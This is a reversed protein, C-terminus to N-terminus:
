LRKLNTWMPGTDATDAVCDTHTNTNNELKGSFWCTTFVEKPGVQLNQKKQLDCQCSHTSRRQRERWQAVHGLLIHSAGVAPGGVPRVRVRVRSALARPTVAHHQLVHGRQGYVHKLGPVELPPERLDLGLEPDSGRDDSTPRGNRQTSAGSRGPVRNKFATLVLPLPCVLHAVTSFCQHNKEESTCLAPGEKHCNKRGRCHTLGFSFWPKRHHQPPPPCTQLVLKM